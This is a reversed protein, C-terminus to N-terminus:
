QNLKKYERKFTKDRDIRERTMAARRSVASYGLGFLDGIKRGKYRGTEWLLYLILDRHDKASKMIRKNKQFEEMKCGLVSAVEEALDKADSEM